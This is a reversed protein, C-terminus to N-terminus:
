ANGYGCDTWRKHRQRHVAILKLAPVPNKTKFPYNLVWWYCHAACQRLLSYGRAQSIMLWEWAQPGCAFGLRNVLMPGLVNYVNKLPQRM